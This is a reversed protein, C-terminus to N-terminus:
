QSHYRFSRPFSFFESHWKSLSVSVDSILWTLATFVERSLKERSPFSFRRITKIFNYSKSPINLPNKLYNLVNKRTRMGELSGKKLERSVFLWIKKVCRKAVIFWTVFLVKGAHSSFTQLSFPFIDARCWNWQAIVRAVM